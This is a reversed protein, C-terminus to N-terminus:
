KSISQIPSSHDIVVTHESDGLLYSSDTMLVNPSSLIFPCRFHWALPFGAYSVIQSLIVLDFRGHRLVSQVGPDTYTQDIVRDVQGAAHRFIKIKSRLTPNAAFEFFNMEASEPDLMSYNLNPVVVEDLNYNLKHHRLDSSEHNTIFTM